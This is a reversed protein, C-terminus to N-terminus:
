LALTFPTPTGTIALSTTFTGNAIALDMAGQSSFGPRYEWGFRPVYGLDFATTSGGPTTVHPLTPPHSGDLSTGNISAEFRWPYLDLGANVATATSSGAGTQTFSQVKQLTFFQISQAFATLGSSLAAIVALGRLSRLIAKM